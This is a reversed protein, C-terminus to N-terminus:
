LYNNRNGVVKFKYHKFIERYHRVYSEAVDRTSFNCRIGDIAIRKDYSDVVEIMYSKPLNKANKLLISVSILLFLITSMIILAYEFGKSFNIFSTILNNDIWKYAVNLVEFLATIIVTLIM